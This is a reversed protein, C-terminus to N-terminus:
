ICFRGKEMCLPAEWKKLYPSHVIVEPTLWVLVVVAGNIDQLFVGDPSGLDPPYTPLRIPFDVRARAAPLSTKGKLDLISALLTNRLYNFPLPLTVPSVSSCSIFWLLM